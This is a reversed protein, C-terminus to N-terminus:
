QPPNTVASDEPQTSPPAQQAKEAERKSAQKADYEKKHAQHARYYEHVDVIDHVDDPPAEEFTEEFVSDRTFNSMPAFNEHVNLRQGREFRQMLESLTIAQNPIFTEIPQSCQEECYESKESFIPTFNPRNM